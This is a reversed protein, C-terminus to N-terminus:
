RWDCINSFIYAIKELWNRADRYKTNMSKQLAFSPKAVASRNLWFMNRMHLPLVDKKVFAKLLDFKVHAGKEWNGGSILVM